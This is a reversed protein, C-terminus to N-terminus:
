EAEPDAIMAAINTSLDVSAASLAAVDQVLDATIGSSLKTAIRSIEVLQKRVAGVAAQAVELM